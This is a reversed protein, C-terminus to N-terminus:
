YIRVFFWTDIEFLFVLFVCAFSFVSIDGFGIFKIQLQSLTITNRDGGFLDTLWQAGRDIIGPSYSRCFAVMFSGNVLSGAIPHLTCFTWRFIRPLKRGVFQTKGRFLAQCTNARLLPPISLSLSLFFLLRTATAANICFFRFRTGPPDSTFLFIVQRRRPTVHRKIGRSWLLDSFVYKPVQGWRQALQPASKRLGALLGGDGVVDVDM